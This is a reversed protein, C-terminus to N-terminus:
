DDLPGQGHNNRFDTIEPDYNDPGFSADSAEVFDKAERLGCKLLARVLKIKEIKNYVTAGIMFALARVVSEVHDVIFVSGNADIRTSQVATITIM